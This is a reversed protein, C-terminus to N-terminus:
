PQEKAKTALAAAVLPTVFERFAHKDMPPLDDWDVGRRAYQIDMHARAAAEVAETLDLTSM